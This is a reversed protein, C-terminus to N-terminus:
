STFPAIVSVPESWFYGCPTVLSGLSRRYGSCPSASRLALVFLSIHVGPAAEVAEEGDKREGREDVARANGRM